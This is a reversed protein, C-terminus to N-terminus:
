SVKDAKRVIEVCGPSLKELLGEVIEKEKVYGEVSSSSSVAKALDMVNTRRRILSMILVGIEENDFDFKM